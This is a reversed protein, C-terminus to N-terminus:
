GNEVLFLFLLKFLFWELLLKSSYVTFHMLNFSMKRVETELPPVQSRKLADAEPVKNYDISGGSSSYQFPRKMAVSEAPTLHDVKSDAMEAAISDTSEDTEVKPMDNVVSSENEVTNQSDETTTENEATNEEDGETSEVSQVSEATKIEQDSKNENDSPPSKSGTSRESENSESANHNEPESHLVPSQSLRESLERLGDDILILRQELEKPSQNKPTELQETSKGLSKDSSQNTITTTTPIKTVTATSISTLEEDASKGDEFDDSRYKQDDSPHSSTNKVPSLSDHSMISIDEAVSSVTTHIDIQPFSTEEILQTNDDSFNLASLTFPDNSQNTDIISPIQSSQGSENVHSENTHSVTKIESPSVNENSSQPKNLSDETIDSHIEDQHSTSQEDEEIQVETHIQSGDLTQSTAESIPAEVVTEITHKQQISNSQEINSNSFYYGQDTDSIVNERPEPSSALNLTPVIPEGDFESQKEINACDDSHSQTHQPVSNSNNNNHNQNSDIISMSNDILRRKFEESAHFQKLVELKAQEYLQELDFKSLTYVKDPTYKEEYEGTLRKWLKNLQRGSIEVVEDGDIDSSISRASVMKLTNLSKEINHIQKQKKHEFRTQELSITDTVNTLSREHASTEDHQCKTRNTRRHVTIAVTDTDNIQERSTTQYVDSTSIFMIMREMKIVEQEEIDLRQHWKLLKEVHERRRRLENERRQLM